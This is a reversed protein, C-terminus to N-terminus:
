AVATPPAPRPPTYSLTGRTACRGCEASCTRTYAPAAPTTECATGRPPQAGASRARARRTRAPPRAGALRRRRARTTGAADRPVPLSHRMANARRLQARPASAVVSHEGVCVESQQMAVRDPETRFSIADDNIFLLVNISRLVFICICVQLCM